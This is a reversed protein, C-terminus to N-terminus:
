SLYAVGAIPWNFTIRVTTPSPYDPVGVVETGATDETRIGAPYYGLNHVITWVAAPTSQQYVFSTDSGPPDPDPPVPINPPPWTQTRPPDVDPSWISMPEALGWPNVLQVWDDVLKINTSGPEVRFEYSIGQRNVSVVDRPLVCTSDGECLKAFEKALMTVALRGLPPVDTGRWYTVSWTGVVTDPLRLDQCAPWCGTDTRVLLRENDVRYATTPVPQGDVRVSAIGAVPGPLAVECLPGCGCGDYRCGCGINLVQGDVLVPNLPSGGAPHACRRRCPRIKVLCLGYEGATADHLWDSALLMARRQDDPWDAPDVQWGQPLCGEDVPWLQCSPPWPQPSTVAHCGRRIIAGPASAM